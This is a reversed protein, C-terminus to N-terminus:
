KLLVVVLGSIILLIITGIIGARQGPYRYTLEVVGNEDPMVKFLRLPEVIRYQPFLQKGNGYWPSGPNLNIVLPQRPNLGELLIRNPSWYRPVVEQGGQYFEAIYGEEDRAVRVSAAPIYPDGHGRLWGLNMRIARYTLIVLDPAERPPPLSSITQFKNALNDGKWSALKIHSSKMILHSVVLVESVMLIGICIVVYRLFRYGKYKMWIYNLGGVAAIGFFLLTFMRIRTFCGHSSFSPIKQIWYMIYFPSDNGAGAWVLMVIMAHWWRFGRRLSALALLFAGLGVYSASEWTVGIFKYKSPSLNIIKTYPFFYLKALHAWEYHAKFDSLRPFDSLIQLITITRYFTLAAIIPIFLLFWRLLMKSNQRYNALCFYISICLLILAGYQVIYSPSENFAAAFVIAAKLGSWRDEKFRLLFYFLLPMFWFTQFLLHGVTIHYIMAPNAIVYFIFILKIFRDKWWIGSLKWAGIFGLFLYILVALRLGWFTGLILVLLGSLSFLGIGPHGLLPLGGSSWPNNGPWQKFELITRRLAEFRHMACDWDCVGTMQPTFWIPLAWVAVVLLSLLIISKNTFSRELM